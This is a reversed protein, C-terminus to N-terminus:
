VIGSGRRRKPVDSFGIPVDAKVRESFRKDGDSSNMRYFPM